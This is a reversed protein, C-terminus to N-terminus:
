PLAPLEVRNFSFFSVRGHEVHGFKLPIGNCQKELYEIEQRSPPHGSTLCLVFSPNGPSSKKFKSNPPYVDFVPRVENIQMNNFLEVIFDKGESDKDILGNIERMGQPSDSKSKVSTMTWPIGHRGVIYGLSKLHRYVEFSEWFCGSNGEAVKKFIDKLPFSTDNDDLLDLAGIEALFLTEEISCYIKSSRVIGTTTWMRGKNDVIEAMRLENNWRAKSIDKRFQLKPVDGSTFCHEEDNPDQVYVESDSAGSSSGWDEFEM